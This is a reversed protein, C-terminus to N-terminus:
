TAHHPRWRLAEGLLPLAPLSAVVRLHDLAGGTGGLFRVLAPSPCRRFLASFLGPGREPYRRLYNLFVRDMWRTVSRTPSEVFLGRELACSRRLQEVLGDCQRQVQLFGYGTSARLAGAAIGIPLHRRRGVPPRLGPDMPLAGEESWGRVWSKAGLRHELYYALHRDFDPAAASSSGIWTDEVLARRPNFPLVYVFHTGVEPQQEVRFDMLTLRKPDFVPEETEVEWGRFRQVLAAEGAVPPRSDLVLRATWEHEDAVVRLHRGDGSEFVADVKVGLKLDIHRCSELREVFAEYLANSSLHQYLPASPDSISEVSDESVVRWGMWARRILHQFPQDHVKWFCWTRDRSYSTRPEVILVRLHEFEPEALRWAMSIGALGAGAIVIDYDTGAM